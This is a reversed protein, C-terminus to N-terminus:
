YIKRREMCRHSSWRCTSDTENFACVGVKFRRQQCERQNGKYHECGTSEKFDDCLLTGNPLPLRWLGREVWPSVDKPGGAAHVICTGNHMMLPVGQIAGYKPLRKKFVHTVNESGPTPFPRPRNQVYVTADLGIPWRDNALLRLTVTANRPSLVHHVERHLEGGEILAHPSTKVRRMDISLINPFSLWRPRHLLLEENFLEQNYCTKLFLHGTRNNANWANYKGVVQDLLIASRPKFLIAGTNFASGLIECAHPTCLPCGGVQAVVDEDISLWEDFCAPRLVLADADLLLVPLGTSVLVKHATQLGFLLIREFFELGSMRSQDCCGDGRVCTVRSSSLARCLALGADDTAHFEIPPGGDPFAGYYTIANLVLPFYKENAVILFRWTSYDWHRISRPTTLVAPSLAVATTPPPSDSTVDVYHTRIDALHCWTNLHQERLACGAAKFGGYQVQGMGWVDLTWNQQPADNKRPCGTPMILWCSGPPSTPPTPLRRDVNPDHPSGHEVHPPSASTSADLRRHTALMAHGAIIAHHVLCHM